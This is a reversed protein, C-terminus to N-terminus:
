NLDWKDEKWLNLLFVLEFYGLLTFWLLHFKFPFCFEMSAIVPKRSLKRKEPVTRGTALTTQLRQVELMILLWTLSWMMCRIFCETVCRRLTRPSIMITIFYLFDKFTFIKSLWELFIKLIINQMCFSKPRLPWIYKM